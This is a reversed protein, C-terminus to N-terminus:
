FRNKGKHNKAQNTRAINRKLWYIAVTIIGTLVVGVGFHLPESLYHFLSISGGNHGHDPHAIVPVSVCTLSLGLFYWIIEKM